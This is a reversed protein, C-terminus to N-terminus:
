LVNKVRRYGKNIADLIIGITFLQVSLFVMLASLVVTPIKTILGTRFWEDLVVYGWFIGLLGFVMSLISFFLLPRYDKFLSFITYFILYGDGFSSLKSHSKEHRKRYKIPIEEVRYNDILSKITLETEIEFGKSTLMLNKALNRNMVRYGSLVDNMKKGFFFGITGSIIRNGLRHLRSLSGKESMSNIRTGMVMDARRELVPKLLVDLKESPYTDDGDVLVYVDTDIREFIERIATGKGKGDQVYVKAGAKRALERTKDSSNGDYVIIESVKRNKKFDRIVRAITPEENLTPIIVSIKLIEGKSKNTM